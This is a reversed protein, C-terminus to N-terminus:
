TTDHVLLTDLPSIYVVFVAIDLHCLYFLEFYEILIFSKCIIYGHEYKTNKVNSNVSVKSNVIQEGIYM